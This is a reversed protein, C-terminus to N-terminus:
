KSAGHAGAAPPSALPFHETLAQCIVSSMTHPYGLETAKARIRAALDAPVNTYIAQRTPDAARKSKKPKPM